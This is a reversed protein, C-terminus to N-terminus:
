DRIEKKEGVMEWYVQYTQEAIQDQTYRRLVREWGRKGLKARSIPDCQLMELCARLADPDNEHFVLGADGIVNPIEGCDSGVVPLGCAMAEILVRGFQEKWNPRTLSPLVLADMRQYMSPMRDSSVWPEFQVRGNIGLEEALAALQAQMPGSGVFLLEWEAQLGAAAHMLLQPGKEQVLRGVFGIRFPGTRPGSDPRPVFRDLDVGFQPIVRIPGRYKKARLVDAAACNGAIAYASHKLAYSEFWSFPFPYRRQLNQWTFFLSKAGVAEAARLAHFTALNYPEEDIHVIDPRTTRVLGPLTPFWHLHFHGNLRMPEIRLTYGRTLSREFDMRGREDKWYPPVVVTLEMDKHQALAELKSQYQSVICAKSIM